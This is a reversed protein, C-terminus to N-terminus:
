YYSKQIYCNSEEWKRSERNMVKSLKHYRNTPLSAETCSPCASVLALPLDTWIPLLNLLSSVYLTQRPHGCSLNIETRLWWFSSQTWDCVSDLHDWYCMARELSHGQLGSGRHPHYVSHINLSGGIAWTWSAPWSTTVNEQNGGVTERMTFGKPNKRSNM